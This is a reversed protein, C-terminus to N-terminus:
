ASVVVPKAGKPIYHIVQGKAPSFFGLAVTITKGVLPRYDDRSECTLDVLDYRTEGGPVPIQGILQVKHKVDAEGKDDKVERDFVHMVKGTITYMSM